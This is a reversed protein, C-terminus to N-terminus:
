PALLMPRHASTPTQYRVPRAQRNLQALRIASGIHLLVQANEPITKGHLEVDRKPTRVFGQAPADWRMGEEAFSEMLSADNKVARFAGPHRASAYALNTFLNNTSEFGATLFTMTTVVVQERSLRRGDDEAQLMASMLDDGSEGIRDNALENWVFITPQM